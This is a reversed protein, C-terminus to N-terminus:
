QSHFSYDVKIQGQHLHGQLKVTASVPQVGKSTGKGTLEFTAGEPKSLTGEMTGDDNEWNGDHNMAGALDNAALEAGNEALTVAMVKSRFRQAERLTRQSDILMLEMLGFYLVALAIACILVYGREGRRRKAVRRARADATRARHLSRM